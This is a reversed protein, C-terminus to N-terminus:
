NAYIKIKLLNVIDNQTDIGKDKNYWLQLDKKFEADLNGYKKKYDEVMKTAINPRPGWDSLVKLSEKELILLKPISKGGNTLFLQMLEDNEDRLVIKLEFNNNSTTMKNIVPLTQAGDGCWSEMLVLFIFKEDISKLFDITQTTLHIKKDLRSMRRDNLVTYNSLVDSQENGTSSNQAAKKSVLSRFENYSLSHILSKKIINKM